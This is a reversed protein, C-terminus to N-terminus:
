PDETHRLTTPLDPNTPTSLAADLDADGDVGMGALEVLNARLERNVAATALGAGQDLTRALNFSMEALSEGMPHASILAEVDARVQAEIPGPEGGEAGPTKEPPRPDEDEDPKFFRADSTGSESSRGARKTAM